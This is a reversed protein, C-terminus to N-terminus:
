AWQEFVLWKLGASLSNNARSSGFTTKTAFDIGSNCWIWVLYWDNSSAWFYNSDTFIGSQDDQHTEYWSTGDRWLQQRSDVVTEFSGPGLFRQILVGIQGFNHAVQLSSDDKWRYNYPTYPAVRVYTSTSKPKFWVGVGAGNRMWGGYAVPRDVYTETLDLSMSGHLDASPGHAATGHAGDPKFYTWLEDYPASRFSLREAVSGSMTDMQYDLAHDKRVAAVVTSKYPDSIKTTEIANMLSRTQLNDALIGSLTEHREWESSYARRQLGTQENVLQSLLTAAFKGELTQWVHLAEQKNTTIDNDKHGNLKKDYVKPTKEINKM